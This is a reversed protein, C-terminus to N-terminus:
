DSPRVKEVFPSVVRDIAQSLGEGDAFREDRRRRARTQHGHTETAEVLTRLGYVSGHLDDYIGLELCAVTAITARQGHWGGPWFIEVRGGCAAARESVGFLHILEISLFAVADVGRSARLERFAADYVIEFKADDGAGTKPDYIGGVDSALSRWLREWEDSSVVGFGAARLREGLQADLQSRLAGDEDAGLPLRPVAIAIVGIRDRLEPPHIRFGPPPPACGVLVLAAGFVVIRFM